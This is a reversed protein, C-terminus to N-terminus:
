LHLPCVSGAPVPADEQAQIGPEQREEGSFCAGAGCCKQPRNSGGQSEPFIKERKNLALLVKFTGIKCPKVGNGIMGGHLLWRSGLGARCEVGLMCIGLPFFSWTEM